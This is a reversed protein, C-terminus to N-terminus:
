DARLIRLRGFNRIEGGPVFGSISTADQTGIPAWTALNGSTELIYTIGPDAAATAGKSFTMTFGAGSPNVAPLTSFTTPNFGLAYEVLDSIGDNDSDGDEDPVLGFGSAWTEFGDLPTTGSLKVNDVAWWWNNGATILGFRFRATTSGAPNFVPISITENVADPKFDGSSTVSSFRLLESWTTGGDFSVEVTAGQPTEYRWSSDFTLVASNVAADQLAIDPTSIFANYQGPAHAQDDWEDPDAIMAAGTSKTFLSRQQDDVSAWWDNDAFSWGAWETVGDNPTGAGPVGSDDITWGAPATKTWVNTGAVTEDVNPGLPLGNFNESFLLTNAQPVYVTVKVERSTLTLPATGGISVDVSYYGTDAGELPYFELTPSTAGDILVRAAGRGKFWRYSVTDFSDALVSLTANTGAEAIVPDLNDVIVLGEVQLAATRSTLTGYDNTIEVCYGGSTATPTASDLSLTLTIRSLGPQGAPATTVQVLNPNTNVSGAGAIPQKVAPTLPDNDNDVLKFWQYSVTDDYSLVVADIFADTGAVISAGATQDAPQLDFTFPVLRLTANSQVSGAPNSVTVRYNGADAPTPANITLKRAPDTVEDSTVPTGGPGTWAFTFPGIGDPTTEFSVGGGGALVTKSDPAALLDAPASGTFVVLNDIAWWWDNDAQPMQWTLRMSTAGAPNPIDVLLSENTATAKFTGDGQPDAPNTDSSDSNWHFLKQRPGGDFSVWLIAMQPIEPRWSSSFRAKVSSAASGTIDIAPSILETNYHIVTGLNSKENIETTAPDDKPLSGETADGNDPNGLDDWEDPDAVAVAGGGRTFQSRNQNDALYWWDPDAFTFGEWEEVGVLPNGIGVVNINNVTWGAPATATWVGDVVPAGSIGSSGEQVPFGLPASDFNERHLVTTPSLAVVTLPFERSTVTGSAVTVDVSYVDSSAATTPAITLTASKQGAIEVRGTGTGKFWQYDASAALGGGVGVTATFTSGEYVTGGVPQVDIVSVNLQVESSSVTISGATLDVSYYGANALTTAAISLTPSTQGSIAVRSAGQGKFWQYTASAAQTGGATVSLEFPSGEYVTGGTPQTAVAVPALVVDLVVADVYWDNAGGAVHGTGAVVDVIASRANTPVGAKVEYLAWYDPDTRSDETGNIFDDTALKQATTVQNTTVGRDLLFTAGVQTGTGNDGNFFRLRVAPTNNDSVYSTLWASFAFAAAGSNIQTLSVASTLLAESVTQSSAPSAPLGHFKSGIGLVIDDNFGYTLSNFDFNGTAATSQAGGSGALQIGALGNYPHNYLALGGTWGTLPTDEFSGNVLLSAADAAGAFFSAGALLALSQRPPIPSKM